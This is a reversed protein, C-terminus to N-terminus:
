QSKAQKAAARAAKEELRAQYERMADPDQAIVRQLLQTEATQAEYMARRCVFWSTCSLLGGVVAGWTYATPFHRADFYRLTGIGIGGAFGVTLSQKLCPARYFSLFSEYVSGAASRQGDNTVIVSPDVQDQSGSTSMPSRLVHIGVHRRGHAGRM